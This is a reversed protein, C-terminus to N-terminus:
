LLRPTPRLTHTFGPPASPAAAMPAASPAPCHDVPAPARAVTSPWLGTVTLIGAHGPARPPEQHLVDGVQQRVAQRLEGKFVADAAALPEALNRLYHAQCLQHHSGPLFRAGARAWGRQRES